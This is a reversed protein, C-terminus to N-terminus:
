FYDLNIQKATLVQSTLKEARKSTISWFIEAVSGDQKYGIKCKLDCSLSPLTKTDFPFSFQGDFEQFGFDPNKHNKLYQGFDMVVVKSHHCIQCTM